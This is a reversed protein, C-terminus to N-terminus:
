SESEDVTLRLRGKALRAQLQAGPSTEGSDRLVRGDADSLIAYGRELVALPNLSELVQQRRNLAERERGLRQTIAASLSHRQHQLTEATRRLRSLPSLGLLQAQRHAQRQRERELRLDIARRLREELGDLRQAQERLRDGPHRLRARQQALQLACRELRHRMARQLRQATAALQALLETRDESLLEAAASPTPARMDAAFDAITVDVEHGVGV